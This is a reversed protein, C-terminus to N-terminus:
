DWFDRPVVRDRRQWGRRSNQGDYYRRDFQPRMPPAFREGMPGQPATGFDPRSFEGRAMPGPGFGPQEMRGQPRPAFDPRGFEDGRRPPMQGYKMPERPAFRWARWEPRMPREGEFRPMQGEFQGGGRPMDAYPRANESRGLGRGREPGFPRAQFDRGSGEGQPGAFEDRGRGRRLSEQRRFPAAEADRPGQGRLEQRPGRPGEGRLNQRQDQGPQFREVMRQRRQQANDLLRGMKQIDEDQYTQKVNALWKEMRPAAPLDKEAEEFKKILQGMKEGDRQEYAATFENLWRNFRVAPTKVEKENKPAEKGWTGEKAIAWSLLSVLLILPLIIKRFM